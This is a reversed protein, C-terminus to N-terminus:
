PEVVFPANPVVGFMDPSYLAEVRTEPLVFEGATNLRVTYELRGTGKALSDFYGRYAEFTREEFTPYLTDEGVAAGASAADAALSKALSQGGIVAAGPPIPDDVVVWNREAQADIELKVRVIDGSSWKGPVRQVVPEYSKRVTYGRSLSEKIPIAARSQIVVWPAGSGRQEVTLDARGESWPVTVPEPDAKGSWRASREIGDLSILTEGRVPTKEFRASFRPVAISGWANAVTLDWAGERQRGIAGQAIRPIDTVWDGTEILADLLRVANVDVSSM